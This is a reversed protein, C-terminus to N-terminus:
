LVIGRSPSRHLQSAKERNVAQRCIRGMLSFVSSGRSGLLRRTLRDCRRGGPLTVTNSRLYYTPSRAFASNPTWDIWVSQVGKKPRCQLPRRQPQDLPRQSPCSGRESAAPRPTPLDTKRQRPRTHSEPQVAMEISQDRHPSQGFGSKFLLAVPQISSVASACGDGVNRSDGFFHTPLRQTGAITANRIGRAHGHTDHALCRQHLESRLASFIGRVM